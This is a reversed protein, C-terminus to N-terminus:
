GVAGAFLSEMRDVHLDLSFRERARRRGARGMAERAAPDAALRRFAEALAAVDGPPVLYKTNNKDRARFQGNEVGIVADPHWKGADEAPAWVEPYLRHDITIYM